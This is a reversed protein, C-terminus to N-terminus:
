KSKHVNMKLNYIRMTGLRCLKLVLEDTWKVCDQKIPKRVVTVKKDDISLLGANDPILELADKKLYHPVAYYFFKILQHKHGHKKKFDNKLDQKSIKIEIETGYNSNSLMILDCEHLPKNKYKIGKGVNPVIINKNFKFHRMLMLEMELTTINNKDKIKVKKIRPM